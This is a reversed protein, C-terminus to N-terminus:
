EQPVLEYAVDSLNKDTNVRLIKAKSPEVKAWKDIKIQIHEKFVQAHSNRITIVAGEKVVNLQDDIAVLKACGFEDGVICDGIM